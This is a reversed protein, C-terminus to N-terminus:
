PTWGLLECGLARINGQRNKVTFVEADKAAPVAIVERASVPVHWLSCTGACYWNSCYMGEDRDFAIHQGDPSWIASHTMDTSTLRELSTGDLNAIWLDSNSIKQDASLKVLQVILHSGQPNIWLNWIKREVAMDIQGIQQEQEGSEIGSTYIVGEPSIRIYNGNPLWNILADNVMIAKLVKKTALNYFVYVPPDLLDTGWTFLVIEKSKPSPKLDRAYGDLHDTFIPNGTVANYVTLDTYDSDSLADAVIFQSGDPWPYAYDNPAIVTPLAGSLYALHTGDSFDLAYDHHWLRGSLKPLAPETNSCDEVCNLVSVVSLSVKAPAINGSLRGTWQNNAYVGNFTLKGSPYKLRWIVKGKRIFGTIGVDYFLGSYGSKLHGLGTLNGNNIVLQNLVLESNVMETYETVVPTRKFKLKGQITKYNGSAYIGTIRGKLKLRSNDVSSIVTLTYDNGKQQGECNAQHGKLTSEISCSFDGHDGYLIKLDLLINGQTTQINARLAHLKSISLPLIMVPTQYTAANLWNAQVSLVFAVLILFNKNM